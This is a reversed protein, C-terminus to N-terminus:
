GTKKARAESVNWTRGGQSTNNLAAIAAQAEAAKEFGVFGFGRSTGTQFDTVIKCYVVEGYRGFIRELDAETTDFSVNGIFLRTSM